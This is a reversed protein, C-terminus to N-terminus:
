HIILALEPVIRPLAAIGITTRFATSLFLFLIAKRNPMGFVRKVVLFYTGFVGLFLAAGALQLLAAAFVLLPWAITAIAANALTGKKSGGAGAVLFKVLITGIALSALIGLYYYIAM